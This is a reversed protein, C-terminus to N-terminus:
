DGGFRLTYETLLELDGRELKHAFGPMTGFGYSIRRYILGRRRDRVLLSATLDLAPALGRQARDGRGDVGHCRQCNAVWLEEATLGSTPPGCGAILAGV